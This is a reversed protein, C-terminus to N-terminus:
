LIFLFDKKRDAPRAGSIGLVIKDSFWYGTFSMLGSIILAVGVFGVGRCGQCRWFVGGIGNLYLLHICGYSRYFDGSSGCEEM